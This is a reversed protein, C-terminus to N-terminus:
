SFLICRRSSTISKFYETHAIPDILFLPLQAALNGKWEELEATDEIKATVADGYNGCIM